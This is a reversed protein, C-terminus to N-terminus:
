MAQETDPRRHLLHSRLETIYSDLRQYSLKFSRCEQETWVYASAQGPAAQDLLALAESDRGLLHRVFARNATNVTPEALPFRAARDLPGLAREPATPVLCFGLNNLAEGDGPNMFALATFIEAAADPDGLSLHHVAREVFQQTSLDRDQSRRTAADMQTEEDSLRRLLVEAVQAPEVRRAALVRKSCDSVSNGASSVYELLLSTTAWRELDTLAFRDWIWDAKPEADLPPVNALLAELPARWALFSMIDSDVLRGFWATLRAHFWSKLTEQVGAHHVQCAKFLRAWEDGIAEDQSALRLTVQSAMAAAAHRRLIDAVPIQRQELEKWMEFFQDDSAERCAPPTSAFNHARLLLTTTSSTGVPEHLEALLIETADFPTTASAVQIPRTVGTMVLGDLVTLSEIPRRVGMRALVTRCEEACTPGTDGLRYYPCGPTLRPITCADSYATLAQAMLESDSGPSGMM